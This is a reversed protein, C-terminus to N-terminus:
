YETEPYSQRRGSSKRAVVTAVAGRREEGDDHEVRTEERYVLVTMDLFARLLDNSRLRHRDDSPGYDVEDASRLHHEYVVVGCDRLSEKLDPILGLGDFFSVVVVDYCDCPVDFSDVDALIWNVADDVGREKATERAESLATESIDLADVEYGEEALFVANRGTGTAVDLARGDPFEDVLRELEPVPNEPLEFEDSSHKAEWREHEDTEDM